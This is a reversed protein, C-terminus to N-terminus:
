GGVAQFVLIALAVGAFLAIMYTQVFGTTLRRTQSGIAVTLAAVGNVLGDILYKDLFAAIAALGRTGQVFVAYYLEDFYFKNKVLKYLGAAGQILRKRAPAGMAGFLVVGLVIGAVAAATALTPVPGHAHGGSATHESLALFDDVSQGLLAPASFGAVLSPIALLVLPVLMVAPSEHAHEYAHRDRPRGLFTLFFLRTMYFATLAAAIIGLWFLATNAEYAALLVADKSYFGSFPWIGALALTGVLFTVATVPLKGLLGGMRHMNQEHHLAHIVSGAGLFLLAKFFGHTTLHFIAAAFGGLGLAMVMYGLQSMTSYALVKKIDEQLVAVVAAFLATIGGVWAVISLAIGSAEFLPYTRAILFVGAAVMTAAHILASVPTPGAMADPLWVHLPLQASKGVAAWFLFLAAATVWWTGAATGEVASFIGEFELTGAQAFLLFMGALLGLDGIRTTVFAKFAARANDLNEFWHGILSFSAFSMLEWGFLFLLLNDALVTTLMGATFLTVITFFRNYKADGQMYGMSYLQILTSAFTVMTVVFAELNGMQVGMNFIRDGVQAWRFQLHVPEAGTKLALLSGAALVFAGATAVIGVLPGIVPGLRKGFFLLIVSAAFPLIPIWAANELM